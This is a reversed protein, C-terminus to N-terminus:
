LKIKSNIVESGFFLDNSSFNIADKLNLFWNIEKSTFNISYLSGYTNLYLVSDQNISLNSKFNNKVTTEETPIQKIINGDIKNIFFLNNNQNSLILNNKALKLNSSFPIKYNKAWLIENKKYDFAYLYGINDAM